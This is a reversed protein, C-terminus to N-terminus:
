WINYWIVLSCVFKYSKIKNILSKALNKTDNDRSTDNYLSFPAEYIRELNFRLCKIADIRSEWRTDSLSKVTLSSIQKILIHWRYTSASFFSYIEQIIIAFFNTVELSSKESDNVVLNLIHAACPVFFARSNINLNRKQVGNHKGKMNPGNDYGQGRMDM